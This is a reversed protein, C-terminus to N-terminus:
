DTGEGPFRGRRIGLASVTLGSMSYICLGLTLLPMGATFLTTLGTILLDRAGAAPALTFGRCTHVAMAEKIHSSTAARM